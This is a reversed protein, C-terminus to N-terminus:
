SVNWQATHVTCMPFIDKTVSLVAVFSVEQRTWACAVMLALIETVNMSMTMALKAKGVQTLSSFVNWLVDNLMNPPLFFFLANNSM